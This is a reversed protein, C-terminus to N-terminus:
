RSQLESTHEESRLRPLALRRDAAILCGRRPDATAAPSWDSDLLRLRARDALAAIELRNVLRGHRRHCAPLAADLFLFGEVAELHLPRRLGLLDEIAHRLPVLPAPDLGADFLDGPDLPQGADRAVKGVRVQGLGIP